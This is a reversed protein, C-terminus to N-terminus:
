FRCILARNRLVVIVYLLSTRIYFIWENLACFLWRIHETFFSTRLYKAINVPFCRHQLRKKIFNCSKLGSPLKHQFLFNENREYWVEFLTLSFYGDWNETKKEKLPAYWYGRLIRFNHSKCNWKNKWLFNIEWLDKALWIRKHHLQWPPLVLGHSTWIWM